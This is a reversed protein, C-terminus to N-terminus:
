GALRRQRVVRVWEKTEQWAQTWLYARERARTWADDWTPVPLGENALWLSWRGAPAHYEQAWLQIQEDTPPHTGLDVDNM